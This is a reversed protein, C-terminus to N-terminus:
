GRVKEKGSERKKKSEVVLPMFDKFKDILGDTPAIRADVVDMEFNLVPIGFEEQIADKVVKAVAWNAKCGVHGAFVAGDAKYDRVMDRSANLWEEVPGRTERSMPMNLSKKALAKMMSDYTSIDEAPEVVMNNNMFTISIAGYNEALWDMVGGVPDYAPMLYHWVLRYKEEIALPENRAIRDVTNKYTREMYDVLEPTGALHLFLPYDLMCEQLSFRCPVQMALTNLKLLIEHARRSNKMVERLRDVDMKRGTVGEVFSVMKKLENAVYKYGAESDTYPTSIGFIPFGTYRASSPELGMISDCPNNTVVVLDPPPVQGALVVGLPLRNTSCIHDPVVDNAFDIPGDVVGSFSGLVGFTVPACFPTIGMAIFIEPPVSFGIWALPKGNDIADACAAFIDGLMGYGEAKLPNDKMTDDKMAAFGLAMGRYIYEKKEEM